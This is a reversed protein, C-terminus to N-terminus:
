CLWLSNAPAWFDFRGFGLSTLCTPEDQNMEPCGSAGRAAAEVVGNEVLWGNPNRDLRLKDRDLEIRVVM